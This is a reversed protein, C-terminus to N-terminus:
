SVNYLDFRRFCVTADGRGDLAPVWTQQRESSRGSDAGGEKM